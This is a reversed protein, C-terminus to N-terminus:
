FYYGASLSLVSNSMKEDLYYEWMINKLSYRFDLSLFLKKYTLGVMNGIGFDFRKISTYGYTDPLNNEDPQITKEWKIDVTYSSDVSGYTHTSVSGNLGYSFCPGVGYFFNVKALNTKIKIYLPIELYNIRSTMEASTFPSYQTYLTQRFGKQSFSIGTSASLSSNIKIDALINLNLGVIPNIRFTSLDRLHVSMTSFGPGASIGATIQGSVPLTFYCIVFFIILKKM